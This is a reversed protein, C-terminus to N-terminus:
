IDEDEEDDDDVPTNTNAAVPTTKGKSMEIEYM